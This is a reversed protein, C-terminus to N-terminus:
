VTDDNDEDIYGEVDDCKTTHRIGLLGLLKFNILINKLIILFYKKIKLGAGLAEHM